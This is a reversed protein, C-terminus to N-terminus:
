NTPLPYQLPIFTFVSFLISRSVQSVIDNRTYQVSMIIPVLYIIICICSAFTSVSSAVCALGTPEVTKATVIPSWTKWINTSSSSNIRANALRYEGGHLGAIIGGGYPNLYFM